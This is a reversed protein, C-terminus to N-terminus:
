VGDVRTFVNFSTRMEVYECTALNKALLVYM